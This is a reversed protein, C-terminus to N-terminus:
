FNKIFKIVTYISAGLAVIAVVVASTGVIVNRIFKGGSYIELLPEVKQRFLKEEDLHSNVASTLDDMKRKLERMDHVHTQEPSLKM